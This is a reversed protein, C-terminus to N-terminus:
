YVSCRCIRSFFWRMKERIGLIRRSLIIGFDGGIRIEQDISKVIKIVEIISNFKYDENERIGRWGCVLEVDAKKSSAIKVTEIIKEIDRGINMLYWKERLNGRYLRSWCCFKCDEPCFGAQLNITMKRFIKKPIQNGNLKNYNKLVDQFQESDLHRLNRWLDEIYKKGSCEIKNAKYKSNM